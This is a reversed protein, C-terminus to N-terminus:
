FVKSMFVHVKKSHDPVNVTGNVIYGFDASLSYGNAYSARWGLGCSIAADHTFDGSVPRINDFYGADLFLVLRQGKALEPTYLEFNGQIGRDGSIDRENMGRLSHAGGLGLQEPYILREGTYQGTLAVNVLWRNPLMQQYNYTGRWLQYNASTGSRYLEYQSTSNKGGGPLNHIYSLSYANFANGKRSSGQFTLSLPLSDVDVGIPTPTGGVTLTTDNKYQRMDIGFDLAQKEAMARRINRVYHVGLSSGKGSADMSFGDGSLIRGSNVDSYSATFYLNDRSRPLPLNYFLGVQQVDSVHDPSTTYSIMATQGTGGSNGNLYTLRTRWQGTYDNGTNDTSFIFKVPEKEVVTVYADLKDGGAPRLEVALQRFGNENALMIEDSLKQVDLVQGARLAPLADLINKESSITNGTVVVTSVLKNTVKKQVQLVEARPTPHEAAVASIGPYWCGVAFAAALAALTKHYKRGRKTLGKKNM